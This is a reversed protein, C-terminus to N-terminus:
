VRFNMWCKLAHARTIANLQEEDIFMYYKRAFPRALFCSTTLHPSSCSALAVLCPLLPGSTRQMTCCGHYVIGQHPASELIHSHFFMISVFLLHAALLLPRMSSQGDSMTWSLTFCKRAQCIHPSNVVIHNNFRMHIISASSSVSVKAHRIM